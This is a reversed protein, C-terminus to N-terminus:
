DTEAGRASRSMEMIYRLQENDEHCAYEFFEYEPDLKWPFGATWSGTLVVPDEVHIEYDITDAGTRTLREVIRLQESTPIKTGGPGVILM